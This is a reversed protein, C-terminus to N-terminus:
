EAAGPMEFEAEIRINVEDGVFPTYKDVGFDSRKVMTTGSFGIKYLNNGEDFAARNFTADITVPKTNDKITLDGTIVGTSDGTKEVSTSVFTITPYTEVEFFDGSRLHDDFRDVGSDISTADIIVEISSAAPDEANWDLTADWDRWRLIPRSYGQHLYDFSIYRHDQDAKYEGSIAATEPGAEQSVAEGGCAAVVLAGAALLFGTKLSSM